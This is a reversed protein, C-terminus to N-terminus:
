DKIQEKQANSRKLEERNDTIKKYEDMIENSFVSGSDLEALCLKGIQATAEDIEKEIAKIHLNIKACNTLDITTKKVGGAFKDINKSIDDMLTM